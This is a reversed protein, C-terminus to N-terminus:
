PPTDEYLTGGWQMRIMTKEPNQCSFSSGMTARRLLPGGHGTFGEKNTINYIMKAFKVAWNLNREVEFVGESGIHKTLPSQDTKLYMQQDMENPVFTSGCHPDGNPCTGKPYSADWVDTVFRETAWQATMYVDEDNRVTSTGRGVLRRLLMIVEVHWKEIESLTPKTVDAFPKVEEFLDKLGRMQLPGNPFLWERLEKLYAPDISSRATVTTKGDWKPWEGPAASEPDHRSSLLTQSEMCKRGVIEPAASYEPTLADPDFSADPDDPETNSPPDAPETNSSPDSPPPTTCQNCQSIEYECRRMKQPRPIDCQTYEYEYEPIERDCQTYEYEYEPIEWLDCPYLNQM